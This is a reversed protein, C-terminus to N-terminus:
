THSSAIFLEHMNAVNDWSQVESSEPEMLMDEANDEVISEYWSNYILLHKVRMRRLCM